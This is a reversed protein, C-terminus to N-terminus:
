TRKKVIQKDQIFLEISKGFNPFNNSKGFFPLYKKYFFNLIEDGM